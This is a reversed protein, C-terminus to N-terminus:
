RIRRSRVPKPSTSGPSESWRVTTSSSTPRVPKMDSRCGSSPPGSSCCTSSWRRAVWNAPCRCRTDGRRPRRRSASRGCRKTAPTRCGKPARRSSWRAPTIAGSSSFGWTRWGTSTNSAATATPASRTSHEARPVGRGSVQVDGRALRRARHGAPGRNRRRSLLSRRGDVLNRRSGGRTRAGVRERRGRGRQGGRVRRRHRLRAGRRRRRRVVLHGRRRHRHRPHRHECKSRNSTTSSPRSTM